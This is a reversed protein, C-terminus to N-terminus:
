FHLDAGAHLAAGVPAPQYVPVAQGAQEFTFRPRVLPIWVLAGIRFSVRETIAVVLAPDIAIAPILATANQVRDFGIGTGTIRALEFGLGLDLRWITPRIALAASMRTFRGGQGGDITEDTPSWTGRAEIVPLMPADIAVRVGAGFAAGPLVGAAGLLSAGVRFRWPERPTPAPPPERLAANPDIILAIVLVLADDLAHCDAAAEDLVREGIASGDAGRVAIAVRWGPSVHAEIIVAPQETRVFVARGLRAEVAISLAEADICTEAGPARTWRLAHRPTEAPADRAIAVLAIISLWRRM